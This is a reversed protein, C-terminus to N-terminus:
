VPAAKPLLMPRAAFSEYLPTVTKSPQPAAPAIAPIKLAGSAPTRKVKSIRRNLMEMLEIIGNSIEVRVAVTTDYTKMPGSDGNAHESAGKLM